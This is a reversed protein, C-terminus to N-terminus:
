TRNIYIRYKNLNLRSQIWSKRFSIKILSRLIYMEINRKFSKSKLKSNKILKKKFKKHIKERLM